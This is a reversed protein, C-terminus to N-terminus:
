HKLHELPVLLFNGWPSLELVPKTAKYFSKFFATRLDTELPLQLESHPLLQLLNYLADQTPCLLTSLIQTHTPTHTCQPLKLYLLVNGFQFTLSSSVCSLCVPSCQKKM